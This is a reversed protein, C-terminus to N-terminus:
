LIEGTLINEEELYVDVEVVPKNDLLEGDSVARISGNPMLTAWSERGHPDDKTGVALTGDKLLLWHYGM